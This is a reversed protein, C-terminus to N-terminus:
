FPAFDREADADAKPSPPATPRTWDAAPVPEAAKGHAGFRSAGVILLAGALAVWPGWRLSVFSNPGPRDIMELVVTGAAATGAIAVIDMRVLLAAFCAALACVLLVVDGKELAQWANAEIHTPLLTLVQRTLDGLVGPLRGARQGLADRAAPGFDVAYWPAWLAGIILAAGAFIATWRSENMRDEDAAV